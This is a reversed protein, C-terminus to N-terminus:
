SAAVAAAIGSQSAQRVVLGLGDLDRAFGRGTRPRQLTHRASKDTARKRRHLPGNLPRLAYKRHYGCVECLGNLIATKGSKNARQYRAKITEFHARKEQRTM